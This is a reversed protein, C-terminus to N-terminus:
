DHTTDPPMFLALWVTDVAPDTAAVRHRCGAPLLLYDGPGLEIRATSDAFELTASGSLLLVWEDEAQDYWSGPPTAHQRSVIRELRLGNRSLLTQCLEVPLQKPIEALLNAVTPLQPASEIWYIQKHGGAQLQRQQAQAAAEDEFSAVLFRQGNDDQRYLKFEAM